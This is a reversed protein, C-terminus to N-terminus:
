YVDHIKRKQSKKISPDFIDVGESKFTKKVMGLPSNEGCGVDLVSECGLLFKELILYYYRDRLQITLSHNRLM